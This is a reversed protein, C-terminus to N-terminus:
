ELLANTLLIAGELVIVAGGSIFVFIIPLTQHFLFLIGLLILMIPVAYELATRLFGSCAIKKKLKDCLLLIGAILSLAAAIYLVAEILTWGCVIALLGSVIKVVGFSLRRLCLDIIGWVILALGAITMLISIFDGQLAILLVGVTMAIVAAIIKESKKM